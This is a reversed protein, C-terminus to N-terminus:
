ESTPLEFCVGTLAESREWLVRAAERDHSRKSSEVRVPHGRFQFFRAPGFYDGPRASIDTAARLTPLAGYEPDQSFFNNLFTMLGSHKQLGTRTWGPHASTVIPNSALPELRRALEYAFYLNALKSDFYAQSTNYKRSEWNLDSFDIKGPRHGLSSLVVLRSGTSQRLLPLLRGTLAFHGFHNTGMQIEFGDQTTAYPCMMIGANNILIDLKDFDHLVSDVFSAVSDLSTLDLERVQLEISPDNSRIADAVNKGKSLNRVALVVLAGKSGLVRATDIGIGSSAGTVVAIRGVQSPINDHGWMRKPM